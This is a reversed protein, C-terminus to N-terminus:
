TLLQVTLGEADDGPDTIEVTVLDGPEVPLSLSNDQYQQSAALTFSAVSSGNVNVHITTSTSGVVTLAMAVRKYRRKNPVPYPSSESVYIPGGLSFVTDPRYTTLDVGLKRELNTVRGRLGSVAREPTPEQNAQTM